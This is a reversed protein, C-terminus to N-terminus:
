SYANPPPADGPPPRGQPDGFRGRDAQVQQPGRRRQGDEQMVRVEILEVGAGERQEPAVDAV